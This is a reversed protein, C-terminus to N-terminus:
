PSGRRARRYLSRAIRELSVPVSALAILGLTRGHRPQYYVARALARRAAGRNGSELEAQGLWRYRGALVRRLSRTDLPIRDRHADILPLMTRLSNRAQVVMMDPRTLQDAGGIRYLAMPIDIFGVLGERCMRMCWDYDEGARMSEDFGGAADLASRRVMVTPMNIYSGIFMPGFLDGVHATATGIGSPLPLEFRRPFLQDMPTLKWAPYAVRTYRPHLMELQANVASVDTWVLGLQEDALMCAVELAIKDRDWIDDSDCFAIFEGIAMAIGANRGASLGANPQWTYQVRPDHGFERAVLADTGDTSGDDVVLVELEAYSQALVSSLTQALCYARNYTPLVISVLGCKAQPAPSRHTVDDVTM